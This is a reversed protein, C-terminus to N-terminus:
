KAAMKKMREMEDLLEGATLPKSVYGDFGNALFRERDGCMSHATVAIVPQRLGSEQENRRIELLTEEGNLVPMQIDMLVIDFRGQELADLCERGNQATLFDHGLKRLLFEGFAINIPDDEVFLIRRRSGERDCPRERPSERTTSIERGIAFPLTVTFCSGVGPTSEASVTGGMLEVLSRTITLGLGTGGYRRTTSGDEQTFPNFIVELAEPSIGIGTDRVMIRVLVSTGHQELLEASITISGASTFKVANGLLNILIQKIRLQDGILIHPIEGALDVDLRLKKEFTVAQQMLVIDKICQHLSFGAPQLQIKGAEIKSLDLIDSILSLLNKGSQKLLDVYEQQEETLETMELLQVMGLVGNMPTRIEHSM